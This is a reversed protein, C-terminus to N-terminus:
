SLLDQVGIPYRYERVVNGSDDQDVVNVWLEAIDAGYMRQPTVGQYYAATLSERGERRRTANLAQLGADLETGSLERGNVARIYLGVYFGETLTMDYVVAFINGTRNINQVHLSEPHSGFCIHEVTDDVVLYLPSNHPTGDANVTAISAFRADKLMEKARKLHDRVQKDNRKQKDM